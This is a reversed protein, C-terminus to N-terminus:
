RVHAPLQDASLSPPRATLPQEPPGDLLLETIALHEDPIVRLPRDTVGYEFDHALRTSFYDRGRREVRGISTATVPGIGYHRM